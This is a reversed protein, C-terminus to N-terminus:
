RHRIPDLNQRSRLQGLAGVLGEGDFGKVEVARMRTLHQHEALAADPEVHDLAGLHHARVLDDAHVYVRAAFRHRALEAHRVEQVRLVVGVEHVGDHLQGVAARVVAELADAIGGGHPLRQLAEVLAPALADDDAHGRGAGLGARPRELQDGPALPFVGGEAARAAAGVHRLDDVPLHFAFQGDVRLDGV